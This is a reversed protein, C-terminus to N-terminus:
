EFLKAQEKILLKLKRVRKSAERECRVGGRGRNADTGTFIDFCAHFVEFFIV